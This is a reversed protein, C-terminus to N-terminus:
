LRGEFAKKLISQRLAEAQQLATDVTKEISDCVSLRSEIKEVIEWQHEIDPLIVVPEALAKIGVNGQGVNGTEYSFFANRYVPSALYYQFFEPIAKERDFRIAAVRQNLLYNAQDKIMTVFGYDRKGRSGTLTILCDGRQLLYKDLITEDAENTRTLDRSFEFHREKVNGIKVVVYKGDSTYLKSKFAYGSIATSIEKLQVQPYNGEFAEKLVAQRYVKLREKATKLEAVSADLQSFLEEIRSVIREQELLSPCPIDCNALFKPPVRKQGASGTMHQRCHLRFAKQSLFFYLWKPKVLGQNPRLVIFETSGAGYGNKLRDVICGKGNEMCPTIKAFLIDGEQFVSYNKICGLSITKSTNIKGDVSVADMPVFSIDEDCKLLINTKPNVECIDDIQYNRM